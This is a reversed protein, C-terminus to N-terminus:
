QLPPSTLHRFRRRINPTQRTLVGRQSHLRQDAYGCLAETPEPASVKVSFRTAPPEVM